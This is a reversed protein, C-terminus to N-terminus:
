GRSQATSYPGANFANRQRQADLEWDLMDRLEDFPGSTERNDPAEHPALLECRWGGPVSADFTARAKAKFGDREWTVTLVNKSM